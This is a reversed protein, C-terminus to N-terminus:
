AEGHAIQHIRQFSYGTLAAADRRSLRLRNLGRVADVAAKRAEVAASQERQRARELLALLRKLRAPLRVDDILRVSYAMGKNDTAAWLAERIRDRAQSLSRGYTHCGKLSPISAIWAGSEDLEYRVTLPKM